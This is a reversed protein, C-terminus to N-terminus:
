LTEEYADNKHAPAALRQGVWPKVIVAKRCKNCSPVVDHTHVVPKLSPKPRSCVLMGVPREQVPTVRVERDDMAKM